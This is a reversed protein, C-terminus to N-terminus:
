RSRIRQKKGIKGASRRVLIQMVGDRKARNQPNRDGHVPTRPLAMFISNQDGPNLTTSSTTTTSVSDVNVLSTTSKKMWASPESNTTKYPDTMATIIQASIFACSHLQLRLHERCRLFHALHSSVLRTLLQSCDNNVVHLDLRLCTTDLTPRTFDYLM